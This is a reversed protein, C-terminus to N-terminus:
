WGRARWEPLVPREVGLTGDRGHGPYFWTEDPLRDFIKHEVDNILTAFHEANGRTNGV